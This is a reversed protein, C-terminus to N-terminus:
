SMFLSSSGLTGVSRRLTKAVAGFAIARHFSRGGSARFSKIIHTSEALCDSVRLRLISLMGLLSAEPFRRGQQKSREAHVSGSREFFPFSTAGVCYPLQENRGPSLLCEPWWAPDRRPHARGGGPDLRSRAIRCGGRDLRRRHNLRDAGRRRPVDSGGFAVDM